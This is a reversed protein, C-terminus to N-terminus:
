IILLSFFITILCTLLIIFVGWIGSAKIEVGYGFDWFIHRIGNLMHYSFGFCILILVLKSIKLSMFKIFVGYTQEGFVICGLWFTILPLLSILFFGAIRHAISLVSTLQPRYIQLHPSIPLQSKKM